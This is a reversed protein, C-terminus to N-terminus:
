ATPSRVGPYLWIGTAIPSSRDGANGDVFFQSRERTRELLELRLTRNGVRVYRCEGSSEGCRCDFVVTVCARVIAGVLLLGTDAVETGEQGLGDCVAWFSWNNQSSSTKINPLELNM